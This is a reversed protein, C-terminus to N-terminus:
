RRRRNVLAIAVGLMTLGFATSGSAGASASCKGGGGEM